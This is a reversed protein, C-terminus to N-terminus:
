QKTTHLLGYLMSVDWESKLSHFGPGAGEECESIAVDKDGCPDYHSDFHQIYAAATSQPASQQHCTVSRETAKVGGWIISGVVERGKRGQLGWRNPDSQLESGEESEYVCQVVQTLLIRKNRVSARSTIFAM